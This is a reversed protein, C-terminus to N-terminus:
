CEQFTKWAGNASFECVHRLLFSREFRILGSKPPSCVVGSGMKQSKSPFIQSIWSV